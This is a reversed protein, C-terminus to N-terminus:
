WESSPQDLLQDFTQTDIVNNLIPIDDVTKIVKSLIFIVISAVLTAGLATGVGTIVGALFRHQLSNAIKLQNVLKKIEPKIDSSKSIKDAM